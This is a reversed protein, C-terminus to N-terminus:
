AEFQFRKVGASWNSGLAVIEPPSRDFLEGVFLPSTDVKALRLLCIDQRVQEVQGFICLPARNFLGPLERPSVAFNNDDTVNQAFYCSPNISEPRNAVNDNCKVWGM